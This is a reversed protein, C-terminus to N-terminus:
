PKDPLRTTQQAAIRWRGGENVWTTMFLHRSAAGSGGKLEYCASVIAASEYIHVRPTDCGAFTSFKLAGSKFPALLQEKNQIRADSHVYVLTDSYIADLAVGNGSGFAARWSEQLAQVDVAPAAMPAGSWTLGAVAAVVAMAM